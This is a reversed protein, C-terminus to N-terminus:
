SVQARIRFDMFRCPARMMRMCESGLDFGNILFENLCCALRPQGKWPWRSSTMEEGSPPRVAGKSKCTRLISCPFISGIIQYIYIYTYIYAAHMFLLGWHLGWYVSIRVMLVRQRAGIKFFGMNMNRKIPERVTPNYYGLDRVM